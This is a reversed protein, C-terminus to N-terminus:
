YSASSSHDDRILCLCTHDRACFAIRRSAIISGVEDDELFLPM